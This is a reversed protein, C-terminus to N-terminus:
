CCTLKIFICIHTNTINKSFFIHICKIQFIIIFTRTTKLRQALYTAIFMDDESKDGGLTRFQLIFGIDDIADM